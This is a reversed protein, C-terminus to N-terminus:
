KNFVMEIRTMRDAQASRFGDTLDFLKCTAIAYLGVFLLGILFLGRLSLNIGM